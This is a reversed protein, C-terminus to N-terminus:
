LLSGNFLDAGLNSKQFQNIIAGGGGTTVYEDAGIDWTGGVRDEGDIDRWIPLYSDTSLDTGYDKAGTDNSALHYDDNAEDVFSFTQNARGHTGWDDGTGDSSANYDSGSALSAFGSGTTDYALCNKAVCRIFGDTSMDAATCNYMYHISCTSDENDFAEACSYLMNSYSYLAASINSAYIAQSSCGKVISYGFYTIYGSGLGNYGGASGDLQLGEIRTYDQSNHLCNGETVATYYKNGDWKGSHRQKNISESGGIPTFVFFYHSEDTTGFSITTYNQTDGTYDSHDYYCCAHVIVNAGSSTLDTSNLHNADTFGAELDKLSAYEHHISTVSTSSQNSPTGGTATKVVFQTNGNGINGQLTGNVTAVNSASSPRIRNITENDQWTGTIQEFYFYGAADGGSWSGSTLEVARIIGTAGSTAGQIKDGVKIETTGGSDFGLRNPAIYVATSAYEICDGCGINSAQAVSLTAVGGSITITPSGTKIDGTGFPSCSYWVTSPM